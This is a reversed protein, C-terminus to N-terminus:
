YPQRSPAEVEGSPTSCTRGRPSAEQSLSLDVRVALDSISRLRQPWTGLGAVAIALAATSRTACKGAGGDLAFLPAQSIKSPWIKAYAAPLVTFMTSTLEQKGTLAERHLQWDDSVKGMCSFRGISASHTCTLLKCTAFASTPTCWAGTVAILQYPMTCTMVRVQMSPESANCICANSTSCSKVQLHGSCNVVSIFALLARLNAVEGSIHKLHYWVGWVPVIIVLLDLFGRFGNKLILPLPGAGAKLSTRKIM